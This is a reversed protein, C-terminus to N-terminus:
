VLSVELSPVFFELPGSAERRGALTIVLATERFAQVTFDVAAQLQTSSIQLKTVTSNFVWTVNSLEIKIADYNSVSIQGDILPASANELTTLDVQKTENSILEWGISGEQGKRHAWVKTVSVYVHDAEELKSSKIMVAVTGTTVAPYVLVVILLVVSIAALLQKSNV